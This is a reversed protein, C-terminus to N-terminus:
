FNFKAGLQLVRADGAATVQGYNTAELGTSVGTFNVHNFVNFAEARLQMNVGREFRVTRFISLDWKGYGPGLINSTGDNGPRYQGAPVEQFASANFWQQVTHPASSNPNSLYDPRATAPGVLIGIGAPDLASTTATLFQGSGYAVIGSLEWGGLLHGRVGSQGRYFPLPYVLNANFINRRDNPDPGYEARINYTNQPTGVDGLAKSWTYNVALIAGNRIRRTLSVQLSNYNSSFINEDSSISGYGRYPRIQNLEQSNGATITNNPIIGAAVYAGPIPQNLEVAATQHQSGNGYYGIDLVTDRAIAQQLDLSWAQVYPAPNNLPIAKLTEPSPTSAGNSPNSFSANSVKTTILNPFNQNILTHFDTLTTSIYYVGYGGRLSTRGNGFMDLAFGVRPAFTLIPQSTIKDGFPSNTGGIILGNQVNYGPNPTAGGACPATTCILGSSDITPANAPNFTAPDFNVSPLRPFGPLAGTTPEAFYTYRVGGNLTLRQTAHFDDQAYAEYINAHPDSGAAVSAQTFTSVDGLLFNAFSQEFQTAGGAPLTGPKFAFTGSNASAATGGSQEFELNFGFQLTHRGLTTTDNAFIQTVPGAELYPSNVSYTSSSISLSPVQGLTSAFPLTPRIDPSNAQTLSGIAQATVWNQRRAYGGEVVNNANIVYTAHGLWNTSGDTANSTAVGPISSTNLFGDPVVLHFPDDLYRFFGSLKSSFQHDIRIITQTENNTGASTTILGQANNPDNPLPVKDIIDKLYTQATPNITSITTATKTCKGAASYTTCVPVNFIGQRQAATPLDSIHQEVATESRLYEQGVFFFTRTHLRDTLHPIWVPGGLAFGFDNYRIGPRPVDALNNFYSNANLIQSRFFEFARGHFATAGSKTQVSVVGAGSGGYEAGYNARQLNMEQIFDIGPFVVPQQGARKVMDQGDMFYGNSSTGLGNVSFSQTNVSGNASINGRDDGGPIGGSIGPQLQLMQLFNRSSLSLQTMQRNNILTGAASTDLEPVVNNATVTVTQAVSGPAMVVPISIPLGVNVDVGQVRSTQFGKAEIQIRYRGIALLPATFHGQSDTRVVRQVLNESDNTITVTAQPVVAGSPDRVTGSIEGTLVQAQSSCTHFLLLCLVCLIIGGVAAKGIRAVQARFAQPSRSRSKM